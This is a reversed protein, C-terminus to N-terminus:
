LRSDFVRVVAENLAINGKYGPNVCVVAGGVEHKTCPQFWPPRNDVDLISVMITTTATFSPRVDATPLPTDQLVTFPCFDSSSDREFMDSRSGADGSTNEDRRM